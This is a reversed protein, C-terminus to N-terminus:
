LAMSKQQLRGLMMPWPLTPPLYKLWYDRQALSTKGRSVPRVSVKSPGSFVIAPSLSMVNVKFHEQADAIFVESYRVEENDGVDQEVLSNEDGEDGETKVKLSMAMLDVLLDAMRPNEMTWNGAALSASPHSHVSWQKFKGEDFLRGAFFATAALKTKFPVMGQLEPKAVIWNYATKLEDWNADGEFKKAQIKAIMEANEIEERLDSADANRGDRVLKKVREKAQL